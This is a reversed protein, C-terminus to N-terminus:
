SFWRRADSHISATSTGGFSLSFIAHLFEEANRKLFWVHMFRTHLKPM